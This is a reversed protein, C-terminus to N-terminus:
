NRAFTWFARREVSAESGGMEESSTWYRRRYVRGNEWCVFDCLFPFGIMSRLDRHHGGNHGGPSGGDGLEELLEAEIGDAGGGGDESGEGGLGPIGHLMRLSGDVDVAAGVVGGEGAAATAAPAIEEGAEEGTSERM